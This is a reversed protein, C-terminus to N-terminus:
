QGSGRVSMALQLLQSSLRLGARRAATVNVDFRVRGDVIRLAIMGGEDVFGHEDGVTLVPLRAIRALMPRLEATPVSPLVLVQCGTMPGDRNVRRVILARGNLSQGAVLADLDAGYPDPTAVCIDVTAHGDLAEPPWEVFQPFKSVFAAKLRTESSGGPVDQAAPRASLAIAVLSIGIVRLHWGTM